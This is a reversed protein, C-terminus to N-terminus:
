KVKYGVEKDTPLPLVKELRHIIKHRVPTLFDLAYFKEAYYSLESVLLELAEHRGVYAISLDLKGDKLKFVAGMDEFNPRVEADTDLMMDLEFFTGWENLHLKNLWYRVHAKYLELDNKM